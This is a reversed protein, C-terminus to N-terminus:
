LYEDKLLEPDVKKEKKVCVKYGDGREYLEAYAPANKPMKYHKDDRHPNTAIMARTSRTKPAQYDTLKAIVDTFAVHPTYKDLKL